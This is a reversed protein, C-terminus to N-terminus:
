EDIFEDPYFLKLKIKIKKNLNNVDIKKKLNYIMYLIGRHGGLRYIDQIYEVQELVLKNMCDDFIPEVMKCAKVSDYFKNIINDIKCINFKEHPSIGTNPNTSTYFSLATHFDFLNNYLKKNAENDFKRNEELFKVINESSDIIQRTDEQCNYDKFIISHYGYVLYVFCFEDTTMIEQNILLSFNKVFNKLILKINKKEIFKEFENFDYKKTKENLKLNKLQVCNKKFKKQRFLRQIKIVYKKYLGNSM